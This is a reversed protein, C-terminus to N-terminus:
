RIKAGDDIDCDIKGHRTQLPKGGYVAAKDKITMRIRSFEAYEIKGKGIGFGEVSVQEGPKSHAAELVKVSDGKDAALLMGQSEIGRLKAPMLNSVVIIRKGVLEEAKYYSRLGAVLQRKEKGLDVELVFLKEADPHDKASIVEGVKLDLISFDSKAEEAKREGEKEIKQIIIRAENIRHDKLDFGIDKWLLGKLNLQRQIEESFGPMMPEIMISLNKALNVCSGIIRGTEERDEKIKKWPENEQFYKNGLASIALIEELAKKFDFAEYAKRVDEARKGADDILWDRKAEKIESDFNRNAFSMTRYFFNALNGVLETNVREILLEKAYEGDGDMPMAGLLYFRFQDVGYKGIEDMPEVVNGLSKSMKVGGKGLVFGHVFLKKPLPLKASILMAPWFAAHFRLIDKGIIHVDAPWYKRFRADDTGYGIGTIYNSLADCWVYMVHSEDDPVSIGWPLSAKPRSFSIDEAEKLWSLIENKRSKPAVIYEDKDIRRAVEDRYKSLRFFYNEEEVTEIKLNPHEPCKGDSLEKETKFAECGSCYEGSYKKRYIDGSEALESWLKKAGPYHSRDDSTRIFNDNAIGLKGYMKRFAAVNHDLFEGIDKGEKKATQWNKIGHEDTGTQFFVDKGLLRQFRAAADAQVIELAHGLHPKANPYAIATTVYYKQM